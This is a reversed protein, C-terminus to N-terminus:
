HGRHYLNKCPTNSLKEELHLHYIYDKLLEKIHNSTMHKIDEVVFQPCVPKYQVVHFLAKPVRNQAFYAELQEYWASFEVVGDSGQLVRLQQIIPKLDAPYTIDMDKISKLIMDLPRVYLSVDAPTQFNKFRVMTTNAKQRKFDRLMKSLASDISRTRFM